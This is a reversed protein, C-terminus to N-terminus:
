APKWGKWAMLFAKSPSGDLRSSEVRPRSRSDSIPVQVDELVRQGGRREKSVILCLMLLRV